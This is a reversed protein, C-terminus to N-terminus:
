LLESSYVLFFPITRIVVDAAPHRLSLPGRLAREDLGQRCGIDVWRDAGSPPIYPCPHM